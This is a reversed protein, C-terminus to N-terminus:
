SSDPIWQMTRIKNKEGRRETGLVEVIERKKAPVLSHGEM